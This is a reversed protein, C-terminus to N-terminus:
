DPVVALPDLLALGQAFIGDCFVDALNEALLLLMLDVKGGRKTFLYGVDCTRRLRSIFGRVGVKVVFADSVLRRASSLFREALDSTLDTLDDFPGAPVDLLPLPAHRTPSASRILNRRTAVIHAVPNGEELGPNGPSVRRM